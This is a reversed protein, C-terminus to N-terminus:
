VGRLEAVTDGVETPNTAVRIGAAELADKKAQATGKSGSVIAGAHGMRKGPPATFGAIYAVVPKSMNAEVWAAAREEADGGIEGVLVVMETEPDNEFHGLIDIFDSGPIPDGGIGVCTSQGIGRQTLEHVIQYTLTGSRCVLGVPGPKCVEGPTIGVNAKGPSIVGPCNPGVLTVRRSGARLYPVTRAMDMTPIGETIAVIVDIGAEYSELIADAAFRPPVFVMSTNAKTEAVAERVTDFVPVGDVDSGGKGPTVGAVLQTGYDRNRKAHFSGERGTLGQV